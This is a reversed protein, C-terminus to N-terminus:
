TGDPPMQTEAWLVQQPPPQTSQVLSYAFPTPVQLEPVQTNTPQSVPKWKLLPEHTASEQASAILFWVSVPTSQPPMQTACPFVHAFPTAQAAGLSQALWYQEPLTQEVQPV